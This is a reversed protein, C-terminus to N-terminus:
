YWTESAATRTATQTASSSPTAKSDNDHWYVWRICPHSTASKFGKVEYMPKAIAFLRSFVWVITVSLVNRMIKPYLMRFAQPHGIKYYYVTTQEDYHTRRHHNRETLPWRDHQSLRLRPITWFLSHTLSHARPYILCSYSFGRTFCCSWIIIGASHAAWETDACLM